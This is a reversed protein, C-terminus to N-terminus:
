SVSGRGFSRFSERGCSECVFREAWLDHTSMGGAFRTVGGCTSCDPGTRGLGSDADPADGDDEVGDLTGADGPVRVM